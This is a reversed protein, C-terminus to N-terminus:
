AKGKLSGLVSFPSAPQMERAREPLACCEHRPVSPLGLIIEDEILALVDVEAQAPLFDRSDDEIEEQTLDEEDVVFELTNELRLPDSIGELCRQCSLSLVGEVRLILQPRHREGMRGEIRYGIVGASDALLDLTRTLSAIPLDGQLSKAERAFSPCDIVLRQSM